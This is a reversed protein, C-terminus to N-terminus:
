ILTSGGDILISVGNVHNAMPSCLWLVTQAIDKPTAIKSLPNSNKVQEMQDQSYIRQLMPTNVAGPNIANVRVGHKGYEIAAVQTLADVGAKSATYASTGPLGLRTLNTSTNVIAGGGRRLIEPFEYKLCLWIGKLNINMVDDWAKEDMDSIPGLVGEIGANNFAYDIGGFNEKASKILSQVSLSDSVDTKCFLANGGNAKIENILDQGAREDRGAAVIKIGRSAFLLAVERGIGSTAGTIVAVKDKMDEM